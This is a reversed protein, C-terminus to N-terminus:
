FNNIIEELLYRKLDIDDENDTAKALFQDKIALKLFYCKM